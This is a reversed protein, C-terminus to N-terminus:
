VGRRLVFRNFRALGAALLLFLFVQLLLAPLPNQAWAPVGEVFPSLGGLASWLSLANWVGHIFVVGLYTLWFLAPKAQLRASVLAWGLAGSNFLHPLAVLGRLFASALWDQPELSAFWLSEAFAFAAGCVLGLTFGDAPSTIRRGYLALALVKVAEEILPTFVALLAFVAALAGPSLLLGLAQRELLGVETVDGLLIPQATQALSELQGSLGPQLSAYGLWALFLIAMAVLELGFGLAPSLILSAGFVRWSRRLPPLPLGRWGLLLLAFVPMGVALASFLPLSLGWVLPSDMQSLVWGGFLAFAWLLAVRGLTPLLSFVPLPLDSVTRGIVKRANLLLSPLLALGLWFNGGALVFALGSDGGGLFWTAGGSLAFLVAGSWLGLLGLALLSFLAWDGFTPQYEPSPSTNM